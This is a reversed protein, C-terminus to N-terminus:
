ASTHLHQVQGGSTPAAPTALQQVIDMAAVLNIGIQKPLSRKHRDSPLQLVRVFKSLHGVERALWVLLTLAHDGSCALWLHALKSSVLVVPVRAEHM